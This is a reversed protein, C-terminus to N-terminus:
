DEFRDFETNCIAILKDANSKTLRFSETVRRQNIIIFFEPKHTLYIELSLGNVNAKYLEDRYGTIGHEALYNIFKENTWNERENEELNIEYRLIASTMACHVSDYIEKNDNLSSFYDKGCFQKICEQELKNSTITGYLSLFQLLELQSAFQLNDPKKLIPKTIM